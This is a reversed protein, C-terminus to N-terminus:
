RPSGDDIEFRAVYQVDRLIGLVWRDGVLRPTFKPPLTATGLFRGAADFLDWKTEAAPPPPRRWELDLPDPVLDIREVWLAGDMSAFMRGIPPLTAVHDMGARAEDNAKALVREGIM